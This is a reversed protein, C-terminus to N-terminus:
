TALLGGGMGVRVDYGTTGRSPGGLSRGMHPMIGEGVRRGDLNILIPRGQAEGQPPPPVFSQRRFLGEAPSPTPVPTPPLGPLGLDNMPPVSPRNGPTGPAIVSGLAAMVRGLLGTIWTVIASTIEGVGRVVADKAQTLSNVIANGLGAWDAHGMARALDYLKAGLAPAGIWESKGDDLRAALIALGAGVAIIGMVPSMIVSVAAAIVAATGGLVALGALSAAVTEITGVLQPNAAAWQGMDTLVRTLRGILNTASDVMPVGLATILNEWATHFAKMKLTPDIEALSKVADGSKMAERRMHFDREFQPANNMFEHAERQSTQRGLLRSLALALHEPDDKGKARLADRFVTNFWTFPNNMFGQFDRLGGEEVTVHGGRRVKVKKQDLLGYSIMENATRQTMQGAIMQQFLAAASTGARHGGMTQMATPMFGYFAEPSMRSGAPGAQQMFNLFTRPTVLGHSNIIAQTMLDLERILREPDTEHKAHGSPDRVVRGQADRMERFIQGRMDMARMADQLAHGAPKRTVTEMVVGLEQFNPLFKLPDQLNTFQSRLEGYVKLTEAVNTGPVMRVTEWARATAQAIEANQAGAIRLLAQQHVLKNGAEVLGWMGRLAVIGGIASMAGVAAVKMANLGGTTLGVAKQLGFLDRQIVGLVAAANSAM